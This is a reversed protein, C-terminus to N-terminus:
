DEILLGPRPLTLGGLNMVFTLLFLLISTGFFDNVGVLVFLSWDFLFLTIAM